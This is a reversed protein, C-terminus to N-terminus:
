GRFPGRDRLQYHRGLVFGGRRVQNFVAEDNARLFDRIETVSPRVAPDLLEGIQAASLSEPSLALERVIASTPTRHDPKPVMAARLQLRAQYVGDTAKGYEDMVHTAIQGALNKIQERREPPQKTYWYIGGAVAVGLIVWAWGGIKETAWEITAGAVRLPLAPLWIVAQLEVEGINIALVAMVGDVGEQRTRVGLAGFHKYNHTLLLCPSLLAALSAAPFDAEDGLRVGDGDRVRLARPDLERFGLPLQVVDIHPLWEENLIRRLEAVPVGLQESFRPLRGDTEVLTDYEMFLRLSGDQASQVSRPPMSKSLQAHLGTRIFDTDLVAPLPRHRPDLSNLEAAEALFAVMEEQTPVRGPWGVPTWLPQQM